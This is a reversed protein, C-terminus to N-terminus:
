LGKLDLLHKDALAKFAAVAAVAFVVGAVIWMVTPINVDGRDPEARAADLRERLRRATTATWVSARLASHHLRHM